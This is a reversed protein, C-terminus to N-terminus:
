VSLRSALEAPFTREMMREVTAEIHSDSLHAYRKAMKLSKHGLSEAIDLLTGGSQAIYSAHCHRLDHFHFDEIRAGALARRWERDITYPQQHGPRTFVFGSPRKRKQAYARLQDLAPGKIYLMRRESNKTETIVARGRQLDLNEWRLTLLEGKRAGTAIALTVIMELPKRRSKRCAALLAAREDNSLYRVRGPPEKAKSVKRVPNDNTWGWQKMAVTFVHSLAALYRNVTGPSLKNYKRGALKEICDSIVYPTVHALAYTGIQAKWWNLQSKQIAIYRAKHTKSELTSTIYREIMEGATHKLAVAEPLHRALRMDAEIKTAWTRADAAKDFTASKEPYGRLRIKARYRTEGDKTHRKVITAM